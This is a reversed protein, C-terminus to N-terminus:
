QLQEMKNNNYKKAFKDMQLIRTIQIKKVYYEKPQRRVIRLIIIQIINKSYNKLIETTFERGMYIALNEPKHCTCINEIARTIEM